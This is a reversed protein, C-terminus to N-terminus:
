RPARSELVVHERDETFLREGLDQVPFSARDVREVRIAILLLLFAVSSPSELAFSTLRCSLMQCSSRWFEAGAELVEGSSFRTEM